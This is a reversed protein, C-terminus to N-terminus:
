YLFRKSLPYQTLIFDSKLSCIILKIELIIAMNLPINWDKTITFKSETLSNPKIPRAVETAPIAPIVWCRPNAEDEVLSIEWALFSESIKLITTEESNILNKMDNGIANTRM